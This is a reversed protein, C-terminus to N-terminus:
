GAGACVCEKSSLSMAAQCAESLATNPLGRWGQRQLVAQEVLDAQLVVEHRLSCRKCDSQAAQQEQQGLNSSLPAHRDTREDKGLPSMESDERVESGDEALYIGASGTYVFCGSGDWLQM